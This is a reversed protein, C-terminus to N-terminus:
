GLFDGLDEGARQVTFAIVMALGYLILLIALTITLSNKKM